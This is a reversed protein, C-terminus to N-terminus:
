NKRSFIRHVALATLIILPLVIVLTTIVIWLEFRVPKNQFSFNWNGALLASYIGWFLALLLLIRKLIIIFKFFNSGSKNPLLYFWFIGYMMVAFWSIFTGLPVGLVSKILLEPQSTLLFVALLLLAGAVISKIKGRM